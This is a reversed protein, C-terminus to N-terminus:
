TPPPPVHNTTPCELDAHCPAPLGAPPWAARCAPLCAPLCTTAAPPGAPALRRAPPCGGLDLMTIALYAARRTESGHSRTILKCTCAGWGGLTSSCHCPVHFEVRHNHFLLQSYFAAGRQAGLQLTSPLAKGPKSICLSAPSANRSANICTSVQVKPPRAQERQMLPGYRAPSEWCKCGVNRGQLRRRRGQQGLRTRCPCM